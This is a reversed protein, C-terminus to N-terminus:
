CCQIKDYKSLKDLDKSQHKIEKYENPFKKNELGKRRVSVLHCILCWDITRRSYTLDKQRMNSHTIDFVTNKSFDM